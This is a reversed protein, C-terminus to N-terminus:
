VMDWNKNAVTKNDSQSHLPVFFKTVVLVKRDKKSFFIFFRRSLGNKEKKLPKPALFLPILPHLIWFRCSYPKLGAEQQKVAKDRRVLFCRPCLGLKAGAM